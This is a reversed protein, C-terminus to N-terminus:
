GIQVVVRSSFISTYFSPLFMLKDLQKERKRKLAISNFASPLNQTEEFLKPAINPM